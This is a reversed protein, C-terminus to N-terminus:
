LNGEVQLMHIDWEENSLFLKANKGKNIYALLCKCNQKRAKDDVIVQIKRSKFMMDGLFNAIDILGPNETFDEYENWLEEWHYFKKDVANAKNKFAEQEEESPYFEENDIGYNAPVNNYLLESKDNEKDENEGTYHLYWDNYSYTMYIAGAQKGKPNMTLEDWGACYKRFIRLYNKKIDYLSKENTYFLQAHIHRSDPQNYKTEAVAHYYDAREICKKIENELLSGQEIGGLNKINLTLSFCRSKKVM